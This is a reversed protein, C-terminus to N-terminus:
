APAQKPSLGIQAALQSIANVCERGLARLFELAFSFCKKLMRGLAGLWAYTSDSGPSRSTEAALGAQLPSEKPTLQAFSKPFSGNRPDCVPIRLERGRLRGVSLTAFLLVGDGSQQARAKVQFPGLGFLTLQGLKLKVHQQAQHSGNFEYSAILDGEIEEGRCEGNALKVSVKMNLFSYDIAEFIGTQDIRKLDGM